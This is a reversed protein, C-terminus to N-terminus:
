PAFDGLAAVFRECEEETRQETVCVLLSHKRTTVYRGLPVGALLGRKLLARRVREAPVPCELVFENFFPGDFCLRFGPM